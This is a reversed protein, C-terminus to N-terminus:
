RLPGATERLQKLPYLTGRWEVGGRLLTLVLSRALAFLLLIAGIPYLLVYGAPVGNRSANRAYFIVLALAFPVCSWRAAPPGLLAAIPALFFVALAAIGPLAEYPRFRFLAFGNKTMNRIVGFAGIAWRLRLLDKGFVVQQRLGHGRKIEWGFRLDELVQMRLAGWGGVTEYAARTVLTFAGAGLFERTSPDPIKWIPLACAGIAALAGITMREGVTELLQTPYLVLHDLQERKLHDLARLLADERFLVDADAFLLYEAQALAAGQALAHPKGLWGAPLNEIHLVRLQPYDEAAIADLIRGTADTSRDDIVILELDLGKSALIARVTAAISAEENCAPVVVSLVPRADKSRIPAPLPLSLLDPIKHANRLLSVARVLWGLAVLWPVAILGDVVAIRLMRM